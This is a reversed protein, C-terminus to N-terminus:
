DNMKNKVIIKIKKLYYKCIQLIIKKCLIQDDNIQHYILKENNLTMSQNDVYLLIKSHKSQLCLDNILGCNLEEDSNFHIYKASEKFLDYDYSSIINKPEIYGDLGAKCLSNYVSKKTEKSLLKVNIKQSNLVLIFNKIDKLRKDGGWIEKIYYFKELNESNKNKYIMINDFNLIIEDIIEIKPNEVETYKFESSDIKNKSIDPLKFNENTFDYCDKKESLNISNNYNKKIKTKFRDQINKRM